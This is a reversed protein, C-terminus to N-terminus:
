IVTIAFPGALPGAVGDANRPEIWIYHVGQSLCAATELYLVVDDVAGDFTSTGQLEVRNNGTAAQIRGAHGGNSTVATGARTSGGTLRPTVSGATRASVTFGVRYWKGSTVTIPQGLTGSTGTAHTAVGSAITWTAGTWDAASNMAGGTVLNSRTTDGLAFSYSQLPAVVYPEGAADTARNLVASTSRYIQIQTTNPDSSTAMQILAGGLLTSISIAEADLAAPIPADGAGVILTITAAEPGIVGAYSIGAARIQVTAGQAYGAIEGGGNAAPITV